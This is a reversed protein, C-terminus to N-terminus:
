ANILAQRFREQSEQQMSQTAARQARRQLLGTLIAMTPATAALTILRAMNLDTYLPPPKPNAFHYAGYAISLIASLFGGPMGLAFSSFVVALLLIPAPSPLAYVFRSCLEIAGIALSTVFLSAAINSVARVPGASTM